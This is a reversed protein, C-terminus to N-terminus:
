YDEDYRKVQIKNGDSFDVELEGKLWLKAISLINSNYFFDSEKVLKRKGCKSCEFFHIPVFKEKDGEIYKFTCKWVGKCGYTHKCFLQKIFKFMILEVM